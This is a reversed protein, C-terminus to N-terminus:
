DKPLNKQGTPFSEGQVYLIVNVSDDKALKQGDWCLPNSLLAALFILSQSLKLGRDGVKSTKMNEWHLRLFSLPLSNELVSNTWCCAGRHIPPPCHLCSQRKITKSQLEFCTILLTQLTVSATEKLLKSEKNLLSSLIWPAKPVAHM